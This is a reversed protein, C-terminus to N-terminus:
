APNGPEKGALRGPRLRLLLTRFCVVVEPRPLLLLLLLLVLPLLYKLVRTRKSACQNADRTLHVRGVFNERRYGNTFIQKKNYLASTDM